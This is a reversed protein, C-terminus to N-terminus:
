RGLRTDVVVLAGTAEITPSCACCRPAGGILRAERLKERRRHRCGSVVTREGTLPNVRM